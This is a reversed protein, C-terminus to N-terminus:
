DSRVQITWPVTSQVRFFMRGTEGHILNVLRQPDPSLYEIIIGRERGFEELLRVEVKNNTDGALTEFVYRWPSIPADFVNTNVTTNPLGPTGLGSFEALVAPL